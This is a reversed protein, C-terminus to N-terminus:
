DKAEDAVTRFTHRLAYFGTGKRRSIGASRLLKAFEKAVPNDPTDKGWTLGYKTIFALGAHEPDKPAPRKALAERLAQVTEPWLPRRRAIGTKPRPFDIVGAGLDVAAVPLSGCDANGYGCNIGLLVMAKMQVEAVALLSRVEEATFLKAGRRARELRLTKSSPGKFGPGFRVPRDILGTDDGYKFVTRIRQIVNGLRVPGWSKAMKRRLSAFDEPDLDAVLRGGGFHPVLLQCADNYDDWSRH